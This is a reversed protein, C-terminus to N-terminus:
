TAYRVREVEEILKSRMEPHGVLASSVVGHLMDVDAILKNYREEYPDEAERATQIMKHIMEFIRSQERIAAIAGNVNNTVRADAQLNELDKMMGELREWPNEIDIKIVPQEIKIKHQKAITVIAPQLCNKKHRNVAGYSVGYKEAIKRYSLCGGTIDM